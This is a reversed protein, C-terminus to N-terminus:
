ENKVIGSVIVIGVKDGKKFDGRPLALIASVDNTASIYGEIAKEMLETKGELIGARRANEVMHYLQISDRNTPLENKDKEKQWQAFHRALDLQSDKDLYHGSYDEWANRGKFHKKHWAKIEEELDESVKPKSQQIPLQKLRSMFWVTAEKLTENDGCNAQLFASIYSGYEVDKETWEEKKRLSGRHLGRTM